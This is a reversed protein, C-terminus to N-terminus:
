KNKKIKSGTKKAPGGNNVDSNGKIGLVDVNAALSLKASNLPTADSAIPATAGSLPTVESAMATAHSLPTVESAMATAHSLPTVESAMATAHSLPTVESAMATAVGSIPTFDGAVSWAAGSIPTFDGAVSWANGSIPIFTRTTSLSGFDIPIGISQPKLELIFNQEAQDEAKPISIGAIKFGESLRTTLKIAYRHGVREKFEQQLWDNIFSKKNRTQGYDGDRSIIVIDNHTDKACYLMWEWNFSDGASTDNSKRPPYGLSFRLIAKERVESDMKSGRSLHCAGKEKFLRQLIRYVPDYRGPSEVLLETRKILKKTLEDYAKTLRESTGKYKSEKLFSPIKLDVSDPPKISGLAELIVKQRNKKYEMEIEPTTIVINRNSNVRQLLSLSVDNNCRYFDLFINTDIFLLASM